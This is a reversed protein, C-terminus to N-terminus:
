KQHERVLSDFYENNENRLNCSMRIADKNSTVIENIIIDRLSQPLDIDIDPKTLRLKNIFRSLPIQYLVPDVDNVGLYYLLLSSGASGRLLYLNNKIHLNFIEVFRKIFWIFDMKELIEIEIKLRQEYEASLNDVNKVFYPSLAEM